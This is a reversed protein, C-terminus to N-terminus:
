QPGSEKLRLQTAAIVAQGLSLGGDNPPVEGHTVVTFGGSALRERALDVLLANQFCGGTLVVHELGVLEAVQGILEALSRHVRYAIRSREMGIRLDDAM